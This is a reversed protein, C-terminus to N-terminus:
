TATPELFYRIVVCISTLPFLLNSSTFRFLTFRLLMLRLIVTSWINPGHRVSVNWFTIVDWLIIYFQQLEPRSYQLHYGLVFDWNSLRSVTFLDFGLAFIVWASVMCPMVRLANPIGFLSSHYVQSCLCLM